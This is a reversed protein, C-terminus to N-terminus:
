LWDANMIASCKIEFPPLLCRKHRAFFFHCTIAKSLNHCQVSLIADQIINHYDKVKLM